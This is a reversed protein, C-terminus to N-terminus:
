VLGGVMEAKPRAYRGVNDWSSRGHKAFGLALGTGLVKYKFASYQGM